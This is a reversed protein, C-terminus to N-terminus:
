VTSAPLRLTVLLGGLKSASFGISGNNLALIEKAIALGFGSGQRTEDLRRGRAGVESIQAREIGPGDDAIALEAFGDVSRTSVEVRSKAWQAANELLVGVLETLDHRDINVALDPGLDVKWDLQEGAHTKQLVSVTRALPSNLSANFIQTTSRIRLRALRLQYDIRDAMEASLESLTQASEVEGKERLKDAMAALVSLPTKLGHALDAARARAFELSKERSELLNNLENSLPLLETPYTGTLKDAAGRRVAELDRRLVKLPQLGVRLQVWAASITVLGLIILAVTMELGFQQISQDILARDEAIMAQFIRPGEATQFEVARTLMLLVQGNPGQDTRLQSPGAEGTPVALVFDWLSRSRALTGTEIDQIQWYVGSFPVSYRPDALPESLSPVASDPVILAILRTLSANLEARQNREVITAFMVVLVTGAIALALTVWLVAWGLLRLRLSYPKM